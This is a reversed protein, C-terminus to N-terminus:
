RVPTGGEEVANLKEQGWTGGHWTEKLCEDSKGDFEVLSYMTVFQALNAPQPEGWLVVKGICFHFTSYYWKGDSGRGIFLDKKIDKSGKTCVNQCIMWENNAMVLVDGGAWGHESHNDATPFKASDALRLEIAAIAGEKWQRRATSALPNVWPSLILVIAIVLAFICVAAIWRRAANPRSATEQPPESTTM